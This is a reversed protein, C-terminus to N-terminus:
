GEQTLGQRFGTPSAARHTGTSSPQDLAPTAAWEWHQWTPLTKTPKCSSRTLSQFDPQSLLLLRKLM